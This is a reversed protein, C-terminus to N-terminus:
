DDDEPASIDDFSNFVFMSETSYFINEKAILLKLVNNDKKQKANLYLMKNFSVRNDESLAYEFNKWLQM